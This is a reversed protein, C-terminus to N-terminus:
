VAHYFFRLTELWSASTVKGPRSGFRRLLESEVMAVVPRYALFSTLSGLPSTTGCPVKANEDM